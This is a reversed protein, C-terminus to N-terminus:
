RPSWNRWLILFCKLFSSRPHTGLGSDESIAGVTGALATGMRARLFTVGALSRHDVVGRAEIGNLLFPM